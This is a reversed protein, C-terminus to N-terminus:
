KEAVTSCSHPLSSRPCQQLHEGQVGPDLHRGLLDV